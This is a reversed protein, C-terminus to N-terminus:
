LVGVSRVALGTDYATPRYPHARLAEEDVELGWGPGDPVALHGDRVASRSLSPGVLLEWLPELTFSHEVLAVNQRAAGLALASALAFPGASSHPIVPTGFGEAASAVRLCEELGGSVAPDPQVISPWGATMADVFEVAGYLHEGYAIALPAKQVLTAIGARNAQPIPEELAFVGHDALREAFRLASVVQFHENGDVLLDLHGPLQPRLKGLVEVDAKWDTSARVKATRVGRELAPAFLELHLDIPEDLFKGSAYVPVDDRLRGVLSAVSTGAARGVLDWLALELGSVAQVLVGSDGLRRRAWTRLRRSLAEVSDLTRGVVLPALVQDIVAAYVPPFTCCYSDCVEGWGVLGEGEVRVVCLHLPEGLLDPITAPVVEVREITVAM